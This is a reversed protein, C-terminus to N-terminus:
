ANDLGQSPLAWRRSSDAMSTVEVAKERLEFRSLIPAAGSARTADTHFCATVTAVENIGVRLEFWVTHEPLGLAELLEIAAPHKGGIFLDGNM